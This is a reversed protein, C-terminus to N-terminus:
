REDGGGAEPAPGAAQAAELLHELKSNLRLLRARTRNRWVKQERLEAKAREFSALSDSYSKVQAKLSANEAELLKLKAGAQEALQELKEIKREIM